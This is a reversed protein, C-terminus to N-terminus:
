HRVSSILVPPSMHLFKCKSRESHRGKKCAWGRRLNKVGTRAIANMDLGAIFPVIVLRSIAASPISLFSAVITPGILTSSAARCVGIWAM